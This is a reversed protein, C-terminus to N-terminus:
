PHTTVPRPQPARRPRHDRHRPRPSAHARRLHPVGPRHPEQLAGARRAPLRGSRSPVRSGDRRGTRPDHRPRPQHAPARGAHADGHDQRRRQPRPLRVGRRTSVDFTLDAVGLQRGYFKTLGSLSIAPREACGRRWALRSRPRRDRAFTGANVDPRRSTSHRWDRERGLRHDGDAAIEAFQEPQTRQCAARHRRAPDLLWALAVAGMPCGHDAAIAASPPSCAIAANAGAYSKAAGKARPSDVTIGPRYKGTLFGRALAYYPLSRWGTSSSSHSPHRGRVRAREM